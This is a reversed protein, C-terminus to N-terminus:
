IKMIWESVDRDGELNREATNIRRARSVGMAVDIVDLGGGRVGMERNYQYMSSKYVLSKWWNDSKETTNICQAIGLLSL